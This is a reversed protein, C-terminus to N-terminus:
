GPWHYAAPWAGDRARHRQAHLPFALKEWRDSRCEPLSRRRGWLPRDSECGQSRGAIAKRDDAGHALGQFRVDATLAKCPWSHQASLLEVWTGDWLYTHCIRAYSRVTLCM